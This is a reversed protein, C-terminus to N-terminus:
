PAAAGLQRAIRAGWRNQHQWANYLTTNMRWNLGPSLQSKRELHYLQVDLDVACRLGTDRIKLCLDSDEFDGIMFVEDFGGLKELLTRKMVMCAGTICDQEAIGTEGSPRLGKRPHDPFFWGGFEDLPAYVMGEHQVSGDEFLLLAGVTGIDPNDALRGVLRDLWDPTGPLRRFQSLM